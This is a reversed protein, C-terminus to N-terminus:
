FYIIKIIINHEGDGQIEKILFGSHNHSETTQPSCSQGLVRRFMGDVLVRDKRPFGEPFRGVGDDQMKDDILVTVILKM